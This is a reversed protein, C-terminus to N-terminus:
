INLRRGPLPVHRTLWQKPSMVARPLLWSTNKGRSVQNAVERAFNEMNFYKSVTTKPQNPGSYTVRSGNDLIAALFWHHVPIKCQERM